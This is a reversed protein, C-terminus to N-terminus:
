IVLKPQVEKRNFLAVGHKMKEMLKEKSYSVQVM